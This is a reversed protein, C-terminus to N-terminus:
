RLTNVKICKKILNLPTARSCINLDMVHTIRFNIRVDVFKLCKTMFIEM